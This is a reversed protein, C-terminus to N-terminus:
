YEGIIKAFLYIGFGAIFVWILIGIWAPFWAMDSFGIIAPSVFALAYKFELGVILFGIFIAIIFLIGVLYLPVGMQIFSEEITTFLTWSM